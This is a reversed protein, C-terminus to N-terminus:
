ATQAIPEKAPALQQVITQAAAYGADIADGARHFDFMGIDGVSPMILTDPPDGALRSRAVRDQIINYSQVLVSSIGPADKKEDAMQGDLSNKTDGHDEDNPSASPMNGIQDHNETQSPTNNMMSNAIVTGMGVGATSLSVGIVYNAGMARCATIPVPNVLAGDILWRNDINVPKFIGPLAYSAQLSQSLNGRSLWIENGNELETALCSFSTDLDEIQIGALNKMLLKALRSGNILGSGTLSVDLLAFVRRQTLSRAFDELEDLKGAAWCGGVVAGMSTGTIIDPKIGAEDLAKMFGIHAWGKAAGGGLALGISPKQM